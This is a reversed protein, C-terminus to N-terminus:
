GCLKSELSDMQQDSAGSSQVRGNSAPTLGFERRQAIISASLERITALTRRGEITRSLAVMPGGPLTQHKTKAQKAVERAMKQMGSRMESLMSQDECLQALALADVSRLVGSPGMEIVLQDWIKRGGNSMNPRDPVGARYIPENTPLPRRARNGEAIRIATPKPAPGRLGM